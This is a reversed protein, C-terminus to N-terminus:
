YGANPYKEPMKEKEFVELLGQSPFGHTVVLVTKGAYERKILEAIERMRTRIDNRSEGTEGFKAEPDARFANRSERSREDNKQNAFNGHNLERLADLKQITIDLKQAIPEATQLARVFPSSLIM